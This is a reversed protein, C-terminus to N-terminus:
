TVTLVMEEARGHPKKGVGRGLSSPVLLLSCLLLSSLSCSFVISVIPEPPVRTTGLVRWTGRNKVASSRLASDDTREVNGHTAIRVISGDLLSCCRLDAGGALSAV